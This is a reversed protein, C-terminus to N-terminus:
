IISIQLTSNLLSHSQTVRTWYWYRYKSNWALTAAHNLLSKVIVKGGNRMSCPRAYCFNELVIFFNRHNTLHARNQSINKLFWMNEFIWSTSLTHIQKTTESDWTKTFFPTSQHTCRLPSDHCKLGKNLDLLFCGHPMKIAISNFM